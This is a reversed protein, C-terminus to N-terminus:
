SKLLGRKELNAEIVGYIELDDGEVWMLRTRIYDESDNSLKFYFYITSSGRNEGMRLDSIDAWEIIINRTYDIIGQQNIELAVKGRIAPISYRVTIIILFITQIFVILGFFIIGATDHTKVFKLISTSIWIILGLLLLSYILCNGKSYKYTIKDSEM